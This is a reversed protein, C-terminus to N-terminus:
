SIMHKIYKSLIQYNFHEEHGVKNISYAAALSAVLTAIDPKVGAALAISSVAFKSKKSILKKKNKLFKKYNLFKDM